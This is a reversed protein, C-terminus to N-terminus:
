PAAGFPVLLRGNLHLPDPDVPPAPPPPVPLRRWAGAVRYSETVESPQAHWPEGPVPFCLGDAGHPYPEAFDVALAWAGGVLTSAESDPYPFAAGEDYEHNSTGPRNAPNGHGALYDDYLQQQRAHSRAGSNVAVGTAEVRARLVPHVHDLDPMLGVAM